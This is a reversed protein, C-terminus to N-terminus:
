TDSFVYSGLCGLFVMTPTPPVCKTFLSPCTQLHYLVLRYVVFSLDTFLLPCTQLHCLVLRYIVFSNNYVVFSNVYVIFSNSSFIVWLFQKLFYSSSLYYFRYGFNLKNSNIYRLKKLSFQIKVSFLFFSYKPALDMKFPLSHKAVFVSIVKRIPFSTKFIKEHLLKKLSFM